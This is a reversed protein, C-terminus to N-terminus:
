ESKEAFWSQCCFGEMRLKMMFMPANMMSSDCTWKRVMGDSMVNEGFVEVLDPHIEVPKVNRVNLFRIVPSVQCKTPDAITKFM